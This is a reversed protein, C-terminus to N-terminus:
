VLLCTHIDSRIQIMEDDTLYFHKADEIMIDLFNKENRKALMQVVDKFYNPTEVSAKFTKRAEPVLTCNDFYIKKSEDWADKLLQRGLAKGKYRVIFSAVAMIMEEKDLMHFKGNEAFKEAYIFPFADDGKAAEEQIDFNGTKKLLEICLIFYARYMRIWFMFDQMYLDVNADIGDENQEVEDISELIVQKLEVRINQQKIM